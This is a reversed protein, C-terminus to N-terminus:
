NLIKPLIYDSPGVIYKADHLKKLDLVIRFTPRKPSHEFLKIVQEYVNEDSESYGVIVLTFLKETIKTDQIYKLFCNLVFGGDSPFVWGGRGKINDTSIMDVDGHFKWLHNQETIPNVEQNIKSIHKSKSQAAAEILNDWNLCVIEWIKDPFHESIELHSITPKKDLCIRRFENKLKLVNANNGQLEVYNKSSCFELLSELVSILPLGSEFSLGAGVIFVSGYSKIHERLNNIKSGQALVAQVYLWASEELDRQWFRMGRSFDKSQIMRKTTDKIAEDISKELVSTLQDPNLSLEKLESVLYDKTTSRFIELKNDLPGLKQSKDSM